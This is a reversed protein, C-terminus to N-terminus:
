SLMKPNSTASFKKSYQGKICATCHRTDNGSHVYKAWLWKFQSPAFNHHITIM